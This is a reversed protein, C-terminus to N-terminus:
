KNGNELNDPNPVVNLIIRGTQSTQGKAGTDININPFGLTLAISVVSLIIAVILLVVIIKESVM